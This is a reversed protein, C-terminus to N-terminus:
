AHAAQGFYAVKVHPDELVEAPSGRAIVRGEALAVCDACLKRVLDVDHEIVILTFPDETHYSRLTDVLRRREGADLGAAPEDLLLVKPRVLLLRAIEVLRRSAFPLEAALRHADQLLGLGALTKMVTAIDRARCNRQSQLNLLQAMLPPQPLRECGVLVNDFVSERELLRVTQFGRVIGMEARARATSPSIDRGDLELTGSTMATFGSIANLLTTKGAGNPGILGTIVGPRFEVTVGAVAAVAGYQVGVERVTLKGDSGTRVM